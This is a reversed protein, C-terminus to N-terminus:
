KREGKSKGAAKRWAERAEFFFKRQINGEAEICKEAAELRALLSELKDRSIEKPGANVLSGKSRALEDDTFTM